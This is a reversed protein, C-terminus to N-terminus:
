NHMMVPAHALALDSQRARGAESQCTRSTCTNSFSLTYRIQCGEGGM